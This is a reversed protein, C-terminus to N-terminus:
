RGLWADLYVGFLVQPDKILAKEGSGATMRRLIYKEGMAGIGKHM